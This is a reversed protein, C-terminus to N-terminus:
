MKLERNPSKDKAQGRRDRTITWTIVVILVIAISVVVIGVAIFPVVAEPFALKNEDKSTLNAFKARYLHELLESLAAASIARAGEESISCGLADAVERPKEQLVALFRGDCIVADLLLDVESLSAREAAALQGQARECEFQGRRLTQSPLLIESSTITESLTESRFENTPLTAM